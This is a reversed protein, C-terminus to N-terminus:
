PVMIVIRRTKMEGIVYSVLRGWVKEVETGSPHAAELISAKMEKWMNSNIEVGFQLHVQAVASIYEHVDALWKEKDSEQCEALNRLLTILRSFFIAILQSKERFRHRETAMPIAKLLKVSRMLKRIHTTSAHCENCDRMSTSPGLTNARVGESPSVDLSIRMSPKEVVQILPIEESQQARQKSPSDLVPVSRPHSKQGSLWWSEGGDFAMARALKWARRKTVANGELFDTGVGLLMCYEPKRKLMNLLIKEGLRFGNEGSAQYWMPELSEEIHGIETLSFTPTARPAALKRLTNRWNSRRNTTSPATLLLRCSASCLQDTKLYIVFNTASNLVVLFNSIDVISQYVIVHDFYGIIEWIDIVTPLLHTILFKGFLFLLAKSVRREQITTFNCHVDRGSEMMRSRDEAALRLCRIILISLISIILVPGFSTFILNMLIVRYVLKYAPILRLRTPAAEPVWIDATENLCHHLRLEFFCPLLTLIALFSM